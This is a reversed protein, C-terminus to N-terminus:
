RDAIEAESRYRPCIDYHHPGYTVAGSGTAFAKKCVCENVNQTPYGRLTNYVRMREAHYAAERLLKRIGEIAELLEDPTLDLQSNGEIHDAAERMYRAMAARHEHYKDAYPDSM